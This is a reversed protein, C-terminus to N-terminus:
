FSGRSLDDMPMGKMFFQNGNSDFFKSGVASITPLANVASIALGALLGARALTRSFMEFDAFSQTIVYCDRPRTQTPNPQSRRTSTPFSPTSPLLSRILYHADPHVPEKKLSPCSNRRLSHLHRIVPLSHSTRQVTIHGSRGEKGQDIEPLHFFTFFHLFHLLLIPNIAYPHV